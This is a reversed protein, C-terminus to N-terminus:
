GIREIAAIRLPTVVQALIWRAPIRYVWLGSNKIIERKRDSVPHKWEVEFAAVIAGKHQIAIDWIAEPFGGFATRYEDLTPVRGLPSEDWVVGGTPWPYEEHVGRPYPRDSRWAMCEVRHSLDVEIANIGTTPNYCDSLWTRLISRAAAHAFSESDSKTFQM